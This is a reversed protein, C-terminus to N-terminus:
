RVRRGDSRTVGRASSRIWAVIGGPRRTAAPRRGSRDGFGPRGGVDAFDRPESGPGPIAPRRADQWGEPLENLLELEEPERGAPLAQGTHGTCVFLAFSTVAHGVIAAGIGGTALTVWGGLLGIGAAVFFMYPNRGPAALRTALLYVIAAILIAAGNPVGVAVLSGLLAGRFTAEDIVATAVTNVVAGPYARAAPLRLYGYRYWAFAGAQVLGLLALAAGYVLVDTRHGILLMLVDHPAPHVLYLAALLAAGISYWALRTWVTRHRGPEYYEAAGFRSADLRLILLMMFFGSSILIRISESNM